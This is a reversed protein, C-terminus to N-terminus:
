KTGSTEHLVPCPVGTIRRNTVATFRREEPTGLIGREGELMPNLRTFM